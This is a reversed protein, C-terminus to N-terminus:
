GGGSYSYRETFISSLITIKQSRVYLSVMELQRILEMLTGSSICLDHRGYGDRSGSVFLVVHRLDVCGNM